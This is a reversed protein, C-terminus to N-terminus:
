GKGKRISAIFQDKRSDFDKMRRLSEEATIRMREPRRRGKGLAPGGSFDSGNQAGHKTKNSTGLDALQISLNVMNSVIEDISCGTEASKRRLYIVTEDPFNVNLQM